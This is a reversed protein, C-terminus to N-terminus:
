SASPRRRRRREAGGRRGAGRRPGRRRDRRGVDRAGGAVITVEDLSTTRVRARLEDRIPTSCCRRGGRRGRRRARGPGAVGRRDHQRDRDRPVAGIERLGAVRGRTAPGRRPWPRRPRRADRVGARDPRGARVGRPLGPQRLRVVARRPRDDPPGDRRGDRRPGPPRPRRDRDRRGRRHGPHARDDLSAGRGAGLRLEALGFARADNVLFAPVGVRRRSRARSRTGPGRGPLNVLFRTAGTPRTTCARSASGSARRDAGLADIAACAVEGLQAVVADPGRRRRPRDADAGPGPRRAVLRRRRARRRGVQPEDGRPRPRRPPHRPEGM